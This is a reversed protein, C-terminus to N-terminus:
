ARVLDVSSQRVKKRLYPSWILLQFVLLIVVTLGLQWWDAYFPIATHLLTGGLLEGMYVSIYYALPLAVVIGLLNLFAIERLLLRSIQGVSSGLAKLIGIEKRREQININLLLGLGLLGMGITLTGIAKLILFTPQLHDRLMQLRQANNSSGLLNAGILSEIEDQIDALTSREREELGVWFTKNGAVTTEDSYQYMTPGVALEKQIGTLKLTRRQGKSDIVSLVEGVKPYGLEHALGQNVWICESCSRDAGGVIWSAPDLVYARPVVQLGMARGGKGEPADLYLQERQITWVKQVNPLQRIAAVLAPESNNVRFSLQYTSTAFYRQTDQELSYQLNTGVFFLALGLSLLALSFLLRSGNQLFSNLSYRSAANPLLWQLLHLGRRPVDKFVGKLGAISSTHIARAIPRWGVLLPISLCLLAIPLHLSFPLLGKVPDFNQTFAIFRSFFSGSLYGLPLGIVVGISGAILLLIQYAKRIDSTPAGIAKMLAVERVQPLMWLLLILSLLTVGLIALIVGLGLQLIAVADVVNQHPHENLPPVEISLMVNRRRTKLKIKRELDELAALSPDVVLTRLLYAAREKGLDLSQYTSMTIYGYVIHDMRASPLRPDHTYTAIPLNQPKRGPLQLKITQGSGLFGASKREIAIAGLSPGKDGEVTFTNVRLNEFDEVAFILIPMWEGDKDLVRGMFSERREVSEVEPMGDIETVFDLHRIDFNLLMHAPYTSDFNVQFDRETMWYGYYVTSVGWITIIIALLSLSAQYRTKWIDKKLKKLIAKMSTQM